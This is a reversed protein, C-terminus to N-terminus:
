TFFLNCFKYDKKIYKILIKNEFFLFPETSLIRVKLGETLLRISWRQAVV